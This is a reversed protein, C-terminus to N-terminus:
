RSHLKRDILTSTLQRHRQQLDIDACTHPGVIKTIKFKRTAKQKRAYVRWNCDAKECVLTYHQEVYSHRVKFPRKHKVSYEQLWRRLTPLNKFLLDKKIEMSDSAEPAELLEGDRGEAYASCSCSLDSFEHVLPDRDPCFLRIREMDEENSAAVPRDNDLDVARADRYPEEEDDIEVDV